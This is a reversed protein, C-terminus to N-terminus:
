SEDGDCWPCPGPIPCHQSKYHPNGIDNDDDDIKGLLLQHLHKQNQESRQANMRVESKIETLEGRIGKLEESITKQTEGLQDRETEAVEDDGYGRLVMVYLPAILSAVGVITPLIIALATGTDVM